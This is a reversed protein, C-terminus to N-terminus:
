SGGGQQEAAYREVTRISVSLKWAIYAKSHGLRALEAYEARRAAAAPHPIGRNSHRPPQPGTDAIATM